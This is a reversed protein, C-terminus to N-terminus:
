EFLVKEGILEEIATVLELIDYPKDFLVHDAVTRFDESGKRAPFM